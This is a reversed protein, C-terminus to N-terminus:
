SPGAAVVPEGRLNGMGLLLTRELNRGFSRIGPVPMRVM